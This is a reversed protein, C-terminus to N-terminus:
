LGMYIWQYVPFDNSKKSNKSLHVVSNVFSTCLACSDSWGVESTLILDPPPMQVPMNCSMPLFRIQSPALYLIQNQQTGQEEAKISVPKQM